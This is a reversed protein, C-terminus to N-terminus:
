ALQPLNVGKLLCSQHPLSVPLLVLQARKLALLLSLQAVESDLTVPSTINALTIFHISDFYSWPLSPVSFDRLTLIPSCLHSLVSHKFHCLRNFCQCTRGHCGCFLAM